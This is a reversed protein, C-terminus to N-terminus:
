ASWRMATPRMLSKSSPTYVNATATAPDGLTGTAHAVATAGIDITGNNVIIATSYPGGATAQVALLGIEGEAFTGAYQAIGGDVEAYAKADGTAYAIAHINIAGDNALSALSNGADAVATQVIGSSVTASAIATGGNTAGSAHANAIVNIVGDAANSMYATANGGFSSAGTGYGLTM